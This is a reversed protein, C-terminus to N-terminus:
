SPPKHGSASNDQALVNISIVVFEAPKVPAFGILIVVRGESIDAQTM